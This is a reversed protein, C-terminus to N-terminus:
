GQDELEHATRVAEVLADAASSEVSASLLERFRKGGLDRAVDALEYLATAAVPTQPGCELGALFGRLALGFASEPSGALRERESLASLARAQGDHDEVAEFTELAQRHWSVAGAADDEAAALLGLQHRSRGAGYRDGCDAAVTLARLYLDRARDTDGTGQALVGLQHYVTGVAARDGALSLFALAREYHARAQGPEGADAAIMGLLHEGAATGSVDGVEDGIRMGRRCLATAEAVDGQERKLLALQLYGSATATRDGLQEHAALARRYHRDAEDLRGHSHEVVGLQHLAAATGAPSEEDPQSAELDLVAEYHGRAADTDGTSIAVNGLYHRARKVEALDGFGAFAALAREYREKAAPYEGMAEELTGLELDAIAASQESGARTFLELARERHGRAETFRGTDQAACALADHLVATAHETLPTWALSERALREVEAFAGTPRLRDVLAATMTFAEDTMGAKRFHYRSETLDRVIRSTDGKQRQIDLWHRAAREHAATLREPPESGTLLTALWRCVFYSPETDAAVTSSLLGRSELVGLTESVPATGTGPFAALDDPRVPRRHVSLSVLATHQAPTLEELLSNAGAARALLRCTSRLAAGLGGSRAAALSRGEAALWDSLRDDLGPLVPAAGRVLADLLGLGAPHGGVEALIRQVAEGPFRSLGPLRGILLRSEAPSLPGLHFAATARGTRAPVRLRHRSIVILRCRDPRDAWDALQRALLPDVCRAHLGGPVPETEVDDVVVIVPAGGPRVEAVRGRAGALVAADAAGGIRVVDEARTGLRQLFQTVLTSKGVGALGHVVLGAGGDDWLRMLHRLVARRAVPRIDRWPDPPTAPGTRVVTDRLVPRPKAPLPPAGLFLAPTPWECLDALSDHDERRGSELRHRAEAVADLVAPADWVGDQTHLRGLVAYVEACFAAAYRDSVAASMALVCRVGAAVLEAALGTLREGPDAATRASGDSSRGAGTSCGALVVLRPVGGAPFADVLDRATVTRTRGRGDELLLADARAHCSLHLIDCPRRRIERRIEALTDPGDIMAVDIHRQRVGAEVAGVIRRADAELDLAPGELEDLPDAFAALIRLSDAGGPEHGPGQRGAPARYFRVRPSLALPAPAGPLLVTEWPIGAFEPVSVAFGIWVPRDPGSGDLARAVAEAAPGGLFAEGIAIGLAHVAYRSATSAPTTRSTVPDFRTLSPRGARSRTLRWLREQVARTLGRHEHTVVPTGDVSVATETRTVTVLVSVPRGASGPGSESRVTM